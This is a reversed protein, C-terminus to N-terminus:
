KRVVRALSLLKSSIQLGARQAAGLNIELRVRGAELKLTVMGGEALFWDAEGVTLVGAAKMEETLPRRKSSGIFAIHCESGQRIGRQVVVPRSGVLKGKVLEELPTAIESEGAICIVIPDTPTKFAGAPWDVFKAFNFLFAAKVYYEGVAEASLATQAHVGGLLLAAAAVIIYHTRNKM